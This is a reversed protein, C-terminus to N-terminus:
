PTGICEWVGAIREPSRRATFGYERIEEPDVGHSEACQRLTTALPKPPTAPDVTLMLEYYPRKEATMELLQKNTIHLFVLATHPQSWHPPYMLTLNEAVDYFKNRGYYAKFGAERFLVNEPKHFMTPFQIFLKNMSIFEDPVDYISQTILAFYRRYNRGVRVSFTLTSEGLRFYLHAEDIVFIVNRVDVANAVALFSLVYFWRQVPSLWRLDIGISRGRLEGKLIRNILPHTQRFVWHNFYSLRRILGRASNVEDERAIAGSRVADSLYKIIDTISVSPKAQQQPQTEQQEQGEGTQQTLANYANMFMYAMAPTTTAYSLKPFRMTLVEDLVDLFEMDSLFDLPNLPYPAHYDTYGEYSGAIDFVVVAYDQPVNELSNKILTTKGTGIAGFILAHTEDLVMLQFLHKNLQNIITKYTM